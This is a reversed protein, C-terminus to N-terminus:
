RSFVVEDLPDNRFLRDRHDIQLFAARYLTDDVAQVPQNRQGDRRGREDPLFAPGGHDRPVAAQAVFGVDDLRHASLVWPLASRASRALWARVTAGRQADLGNLLEDMLLLGPRTALARALLM